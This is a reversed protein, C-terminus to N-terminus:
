DFKFGVINTQSTSNNPTAFEIDPNGKYCVAKAGKPFVRIANPDNASEGNGKETLCWIGDYSYTYLFTARFYRIFDSFLEQPDESSVLMGECSMEYLQTCLLHDNRMAYNAPNLLYYIGNEDIVYLMAHGTTSVYGVEPYDGYLLYNFVTCMSSCVALKLNLLELGSVSYVFPDDFYHVNGVDTMTAPGYSLKGYDQWVFKANVMYAIADAFTTIEKAVTTHDSNVLENIKDLTLKPLGLGLPIQVGCYDYVETNNYKYVTAEEGNILKIQYNEFNTDKKHKSSLSNPIEEEDLCRVTVKDGILWPNGNKLKEELTSIDSCLYDDEAYNNLYKSPSHLYQTVDLPYYQGDKLICLLQYNTFSDSIQLYKVEEYKDILYEYFINIGELNNKMIKKVYHVYVYIDAFSDLKEKASDENLQKLEDLTYKPLGLAKPFQMEIMCKDDFYSYVDIGNVTSYSYDLDLVKKEESSNNNDKLSSSNSCGVIIILIIVIILLRKKM